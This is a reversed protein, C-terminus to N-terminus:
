EMLRSMGSKNRCAQNSCANPLTLKFEQEVNTVTAGCQTCTFAALFLEPRVEGTRTVRGAFATLQGIHDGRLGRLSEVHSLNFFAVVFNDAPQQSLETVMKRLADNLYPEVRLFSDTVVEALDMNFDDLDSFDIRFMKTGSGARLLDLTENQYKSLNPMTPDSVDDRGYETLFTYFEARCSEGLDGTPIDM